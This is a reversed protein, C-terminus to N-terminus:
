PTSRAKARYITVQGTPLAAGVVVGPIAGLPAAYVFAPLEDTEHNTGLKIAGIAMGAAAGIALGLLANRKRHSAARHKVSLVNPQPISIRATGVLLSIAEQSFAVFSGTVSKLKMDVVEIKQGVRLRSLNSWSDEAPQGFAISSVVALLLLRTNSILHKNM